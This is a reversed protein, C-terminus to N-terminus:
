NKGFFLQNANHTTIEAIEYLSINLIESLAKAVHWTNAPENRKGRFPVPALYPADTELILRNLPLQKVAEALGSKKYTLVGGIGFYFGLEAIENGLEYSESYCHFVGKFTAANQKKIVELTELMASRTHLVIPLEKDKSWKLQRGLALKQLEIKTKDWYLDIGTEGVAYFKETDFMAEMEDLVTEFDHDVSCPHLGMMPFCLKPYRISLDLMGDISDLDINPMLICDLGLGVANSIMEARDIEFNEAYLHCHTDILSVM